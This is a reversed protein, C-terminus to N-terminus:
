RIVRHMQERHVPDEPQSKVLEILGRPDADEWTQLAPGAGLKGRALFTQSEHVAYIALDVHSQAKGQSDKWWVTVCPERMEVDYGALADYVWRKVEVPWPHEKPNLEFELAVDIDYDGDVPVVGTHMAYSGQNFRAPTKPVDAGLK